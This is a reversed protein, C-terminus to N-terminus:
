KRTVPATSQRVILETRLKTTESNIKKNRISEIVKRTVLRSMEEFPQSITTLPIVSYRSFELNGFGVVSFDDPVSRGHMHAVRCFAMALSDMSCFVATYRENEPANLLESFSNFDCWSDYNSGDVGFIKPSQEPVFTKMGELYGKCRNDLFETGGQSTTVFAIRRHGLGALYEVASIAGQCDDSTAGLCYPNDSTHNIIGVRINHELASKMILDHEDGKTHFIIGAIKWELIKRIIEDQNDAMLQYFSISYNLKSATEFVSKQIRGTYEVAGMDSSVFAIVNSSGVAVSRALENRHYGLANATRLILERTEPRLEMAKPHNNLVQSVSGMNIGTKEAIDKLKVAMNSGKNLRGLRKPSVILITDPSSLDVAFGAFYQFFSFYFLGFIPYLCRTLQLRYLFGEASFYFHIM